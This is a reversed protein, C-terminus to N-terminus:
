QAALSPKGKRADIEALLIPLEDQLRKVENENLSDYVGRIHGQDDVLAL